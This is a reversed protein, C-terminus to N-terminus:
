QKEPTSSESKVVDIAAMGLQIAELYRQLEQHRLVCKTDVPTERLAARTQNSQAIVELALANLWCKASDLDMMM